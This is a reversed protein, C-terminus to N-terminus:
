RTRCIRVYNLQLFVFYASRYFCISLFVHVALALLLPAKNLHVFDFSDPLPLLPNSRVHLTLSISNDCKIKDGSTHAYEM